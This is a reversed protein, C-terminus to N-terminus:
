ITGLHTQCTTQGLYQSMSTATVNARQPTGNRDQHESTLTPILHSQLPLVKNREEGQM